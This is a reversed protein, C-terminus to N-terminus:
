IKEENPFIIMAEQNSKLKNCILKMMRNIHISETSPVIGFIFCNFNYQM